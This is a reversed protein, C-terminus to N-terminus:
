VKRGRRRCGGGADLLPPFTSSMLIALDPKATEEPPAHLSDRVDLDIPALRQSAQRAVPGCQSRRHPLDAVGRTSLGEVLDGLGDYQDDRRRRGALMRKASTKM